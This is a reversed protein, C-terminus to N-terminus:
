NTVFIQLSLPLFSSLPPPSPLTILSLYPQRSDVIPLPDAKIRVITPRPPPDFFWSNKASTM